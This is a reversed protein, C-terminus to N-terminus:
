PKPPSSGPAAKLHLGALPTLEFVVDFPEPGAATRCRLALRFPGPSLRFFLSGQRTGGAPLELPLPLRRRNFEALVKGKNNSNIAVVTVAYIPAAVITAASAGALAIQTGFTPGLFGTGVSVAAGLLAASVGVAGAGIAVLNGTQSSKVNQWWTQSESELKWPDAGPANVSGRFDVLTASEVTVPADGPNTLSVVYEDWYAERKWSGPGQYVIAHHLVADVPPRAAHLNLEVAPPTDTKALKYKTSVCGSLLAVVLLLVLPPVFKM